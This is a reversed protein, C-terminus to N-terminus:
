DRTTPTSFLSTQATYINFVLNDGGTAMIQIKSAEAAELTKHVGGYQISGKQRNLSDLEYYELVYIESM